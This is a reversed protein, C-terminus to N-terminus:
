PSSSDSLSDSRRVSCPLLYRSTMRRFACRSIRSTPSRRSNTRIWSPVKRISTSSTSRRRITSCDTSSARGAAVFRSMSRAAWASEVGAHAPSGWRRPCTISLRRELAILNVGLPPCTATRSSEASPMAAMSTESVPVPIGSPSWSCRNSRSYRAGLAEADATGPTPRPSVITFAITSACWPRTATLLSGPTPAVNRTSNGTRPGSIAASSAESHALAAILRAHDQGSVVVLVDQLEDAQRQLLRSVLCEPRTVAPLRQLERQAVPRIRAHQVHHHRYPGAELDHVGQAAVRVRRLDRDQQQGRRDVLLVKWGAELLVGFAIHSLRETRPFKLRADRGQKTM